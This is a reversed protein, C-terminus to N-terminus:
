KMRFYLIGTIPGPLLLLFLWTPNIINSAFNLLQISLISLAFGICNTMTLATGKLEAPVANAVLTSFQPSDAVVFMGWLLLSLLFIPLPALFLLPSVLCFFGSVSLSVTAIKKSGYNAALYGGLVCSVSGVAISVFTWTDILLESSHLQEYIKLAFPVFVWFAYLEWMHGFYGIAAKKFAKIKFLQPAANLQLKSLPKRYPGDAVGLGVVIGGLMALASTILLVHTYNNSFEFANLLYPSATGLVLAGVLLGLAKGLGNQFHDAAIKMGVPYIGALFFGTGFRASLLGFVSLKESFLPINCAAGLLACVLFIKSPSFRDAVLLIAFLFTGTIFGFQVASLVHGSIAMSFNNNAILEDIIANGAFWLSTGAFQSFIIKPLLLTYKL